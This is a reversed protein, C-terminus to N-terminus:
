RHKNARRITRGKKQTHAAPQTTEINVQMVILRKLRGIGHYIRGKDTRYAALRGHAGKNRGREFSNEM